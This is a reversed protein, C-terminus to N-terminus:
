LSIIRNSDNEIAMLMKIIATAAIALPRTLDLNGLPMMLMKSQINNTMSTIFVMALGNEAVASSAIMKVGSVNMM